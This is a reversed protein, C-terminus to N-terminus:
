LIEELGGTGDGPKVKVGRERSYRLLRELIAARSQMDGMQGYLDAIEELGRVYRGENANLYAEVDHIPKLECLMAPRPRHVVPAELIPPDDMKDYFPNGPRLPELDDQPPKDPILALEGKGNARAAEAKKPSRKRGGTRGLKVAADHLDSDTM